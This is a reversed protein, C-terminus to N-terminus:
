GTLNQVIPVTQVAREIITTTGSPDANLFKFAIVAALTAGMMVMIFMIVFQPTIKNFMSMKLALMHQIKSEILAPTINFPFMYAMEHVKITKYPDIKVEVEDRDKKQQDTLEKEPIQVWTKKENDFKLGIIHALDDVNNVKRNMERLKQIVKAFELPLTSGFEGFALYLTLKSKAEITHSNESIIFPGVGKVEAIGQSKNTAILFKGSQGRNVSYIIDAKKMKAKLFILAPTMFATLFLILLLIGLVIFMGIFALWQNNTIVLCEGQALCAAADLAM